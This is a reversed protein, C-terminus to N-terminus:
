VLWVAAEGPLTAGPDPSSTLCVTGWEAPLAFESRGFNVVCAMGRYRFALVDDRGHVPLWSFATGDPRGRLRLADRVLSLMSSADFEQGAVAYGAFWEPQPLWSENETEAPSFGFNPKDSTWPLPVRCGDRGYEKGNSRSFIPDQRRHDPLDLVEPLGLEDGQYLYVSGPLALLFLLAARARRTGIAVDVDGRQRMLAAFPDNSEPAQDLRTLGYRTVARHVDHNALTWTADVGTIRSQDVARDVSERFDGADWPRTMLDFFFAQHLEDPRLYRALDEVEPVWIEGVFMLDRERGYSEALARWRRYIQHVEPQNWSYENYKGRDWDRLEEDKVLGHAVDVRFGDVGLDFWFRFVGDFYDAVAPNRWDFDPQDSTFLHLYWEGLSGDSETIRSWAPGGFVSLWNNPPLEGHEGQGPRFVFRQREASGPASALAEVFWPHEVSCHNPVLDMLVRLGREHAEAILKEFTALDGYEPNIGTFDAIDYGHDAQPSPYCPNLWVGDVGLGVLYDLRDLVGHLDGIGDGDGDAFSRLYLQYIVADRWWVETVDTLSELLRNEKDEDFIM